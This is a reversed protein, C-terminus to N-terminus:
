NGLKQRNKAAIAAHYVPKKVRRGVVGLAEEFAKTARECDAGTFNVADITIEGSLSVIIEITPKM